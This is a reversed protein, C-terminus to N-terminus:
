VPLVFYMLLTYLHCFIFYASVFRLKVFVQSVLFSLESLFSFFVLFLSDLLDPSIHAVLHVSDFIFIQFSLSLPLPFLFFQKIFM